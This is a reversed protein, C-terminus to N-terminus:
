KTKTLTPVWALWDRYNLKTFVYVIGTCDIVDNLKKEECGAGSRIPWLLKTNNKAYFAGTGNTMDNDQNIKMM